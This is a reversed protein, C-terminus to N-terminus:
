EDLIEDVLVQDDFDMNGRVVESPEGNNDTDVINSINSFMPNSFDILQDLILPQNSLPTQQHNLLDDFVEHDIYEAYITEELASNRLDEEKLEKGYFKLEKKINSVYFSQIKAMSELRSIDLRTRLGSSFWKLISFQRECGAQSPMIAFMMQALEQLHNKEDEIVGWWLLPTTLELDYELDWPAAGSRYKILQAMLERCAQEDHYQSKYYNVAIKCIDRFKGNCLGQGKYGPHLFYTLLYPEIDFEKYRRNFTDIAVNRFNNTIPIKRISAALQVM